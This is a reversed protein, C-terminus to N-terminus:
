LGGSERYLVTNGHQSELLFVRRFIPMDEPASHVDILVKAPCIYEIVISPEVSQVMM